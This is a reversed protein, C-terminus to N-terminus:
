YLKSISKKKVPSIIFSKQTEGFKDTPASLLSSHRKPSEFFDHPKARKFPPSGDHIFRIM